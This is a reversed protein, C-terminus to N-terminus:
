FMSDDFYSSDAWFQKLADALLSHESLSLEADKTFLRQAESRAKEIVEADNINFRKTYASKWERKQRLLVLQLYFVENFTLRELAAWLNDQSTPFHVNLLAVSVPMLRTMSRISEPLTDVM